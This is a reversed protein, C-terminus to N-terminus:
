DVNLRLRAQKTMAVLMGRIQSERTLPKDFSIRVCHVLHQKDTISMDLGHSDLNSLLANIAKSYPSFAKAICLCADQHDQNMHEVVSQITNADFEM